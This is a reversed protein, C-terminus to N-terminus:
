FPESRHVNGPKTVEEVSFEIALPGKGESWRDEIERLGANLILILEKFKNWRKVYRIVDIKSTDNRRDEVDDALFVTQFYFQTILVYM